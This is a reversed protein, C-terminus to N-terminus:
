TPVTLCIKSCLKVIEHAYIACKMLLAAYCLIKLVTPEVRTHTHQPPPPQGYKGSHFPGSCLGLVRFPGLTGVCAHSM